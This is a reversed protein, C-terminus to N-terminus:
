LKEAKRELSKLRSIGKVSKVLNDPDAPSGLKSKCLGKGSFASLRGNLDFPNKLFSNSFEFFDV